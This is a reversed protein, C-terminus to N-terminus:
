CRSSRSSSRRPRSGRRSRSRRRSCRRSSTPTRRTVDFLPPVPEEESAHAGSCVRTEVERRRGKISHTPVEIARRYSGHPGQLRKTDTHGSRHGSRVASEWAPGTTMVTAGAVSASLPALRRIPSMRRSSPKTPSSASAFAASSCSFDPCGSPCIRTSCPAIVRRSSALASASCHDSWTEIEGSGAGM